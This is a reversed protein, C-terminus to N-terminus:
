SCSPRQVYIYDRIGDSFEHKLSLTVVVIVIMKCLFLGRKNIQSAVNIKLDAFVIGILTM